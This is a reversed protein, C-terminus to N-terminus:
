SNLADNNGDVVSGFINQLRLATLGHRDVVLGDASQSAEM